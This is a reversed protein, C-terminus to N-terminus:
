IHILSLTPGTGAPRASWRIRGSRGTTAATARAAAPAARAAAGPGRGRTSSSSSRTSAPSSIRRRRRRAPTERRRRVRTSRRPRPPRGPSRRRARRGTRTTEGFDILNITGNITKTVNEPKIDNHLVNCQHMQEVTKVMQLGYKCVVNLPVSEPVSESKHIKKLTKGCDKMVIVKEDDYCCSKPVGEVKNEMLIQIINKEREYLELTAPTKIVVEELHHWTTPQWYQMLVGNM